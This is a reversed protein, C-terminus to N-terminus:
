GNIKEQLQAIQKKMEEIEACLALIMVSRADTIGCESLMRAGPRSQLELAYDRGPISSPLYSIKKSMDTPDSAFVSLMDDRM